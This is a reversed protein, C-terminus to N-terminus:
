LRKKALTSAPKPREFAKPQPRISSLRAGHTWFEGARRRRRGDRELVPGRDQEDLAALEVHDVAGEHKDIRRPTRVTMGTPPM